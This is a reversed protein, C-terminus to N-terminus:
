GGCSTKEGSYIAMRDMLYIRLMLPVPDSVTRLNAATEGFM